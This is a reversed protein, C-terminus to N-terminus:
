VARGIEAKRWKWHVFLKPERKMLGMLWEYARLWKGRFKKFKRIAWKILKYDIQRLVPAMASKYYAGYYNIWGVVVKNLKDAIEVIGLSTCKM